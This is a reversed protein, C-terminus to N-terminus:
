SFFMDDSIRALVVMFFNEAGMGARFQPEEAAVM